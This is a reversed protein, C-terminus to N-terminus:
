TNLYVLFLKDFIELLPRIFEMIPERWIMVVVAAGALYPGYPIPQFHKKLVSAIGYMMIAATLGFFPAIFFVPVAEGPGLVAGIAALLHVDGLGMAEKGFLLSGFIRTFWVLAAGILYGEVVGGLVLLWWPWGMPGRPGLWAGLLFGITPFFVFLCEKLVERRAHPYHFWPVEEANEHEKLHVEYLKDYDAFSLPIVKLKLLILSVALGLLGAGAATTGLPPAIPMLGIVLPTGQLWPPLSTQQKTYIFMFVALPLVILAVVTVVWPIIPPIISLKADIVTSALLAALLVLHVIFVPWTATFGQVGFQPRLMTQYYIVFLGAFMLATIAEILPYQFSIPEKCYRCKGRLWLWGFVPVNDHWALCHGCKPCRSRPKVISKGEPLRYIVVNLFSGVCGGYAALFILWFWNPM